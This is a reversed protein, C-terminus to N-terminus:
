EGSAAADTAKRGLGKGSTEGKTTEEGAGGKAAGSGMGSGMAGGMGPGGAMGPAGVGAAAMTVPAASSPLTPMVIPDVLTANVSVTIIGRGATGGPVAAGGAGGTPMGAGAGPGMAGAGPGMAGAGPGMAGAGPGMAGGGGPMMAGGGGGGPMMAGPGGGAAGMAGPGMGAGPGMAGGGGGGAAQGATGPLIATGPQTVGSISIGTLHPCRIMNLMFRPYDAAPMTVMFSVSTPPNITFSTVQATGAIFENIAYFRDFFQGGSTDAAAIFDLKDQLPQVRSSAAQADGTLQTYRDADPKVKAIDAQVANDQVKLAGVVALWGFISAVVVALVLVFLATNRRAIAYTRPLLNIRLV